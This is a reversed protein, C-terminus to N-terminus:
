SHTWVGGGGAPPGPCGLASGDMNLKFWGPSPLNWRVQILKKGFVLMQPIVLCSFESALIEVDSMLSPKLNSHQFSCRNRQLWLNWIGFLFFTDQTFSKNPIANSNLANSKLQRNFPSSFFEADNAPIRAKIWFSKAVHYDRLIHSIDEVQSCHIFSPNETLGKHHLTNKVILSNHICKWLFLHMKPYCKLKQIWRGDFSFAPGVEGFALNYAHKSDFLGKAKGDWCLIDKGVSAKRLPITKLTLLWSDPIVSSIQSCDWQGDVM